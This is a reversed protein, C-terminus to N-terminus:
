KATRFNVKMPKLANGAKDKFGRYRTSNLQFQYHWNPKLKVPVTLVTHTTNYFIRDSIKPFNPVGGVISWSNDMMPRDFTIIISTTDPAVDAASNAPIISIVQPLTIGIKQMEDPTLERTKFNVEVPILPNGHEDKFGLYKQSNLYFRYNWNPKLKVPITLITRRSNYFINDNIEPFNPGGGVVSWSGNRMPRDFTVIIADINPNVKLSRNEPKLRLIRPAKEKLAQFQAEWEKKVLKINETVNNAYSNIFKTIQPFFNNLGPNKNREMEYKQLLKVLGRVWFFGNKQEADIQKDGKEKGYKMHMFRAVCARVLSEKMVTDWGAYAQARMQKAVQPLIKEGAKQLAYMNKEVLPNVFSHCFEHVITSIFSSDFAPMGEKDKLWAGLVCFLEEDNKSLLFNPGYCSGGNVLAIFISFKKGRQKGFYNSFWSLVEHKKLVEQLRMEALRYLKNHKEIFTLFNSDVVFSRAAKIFERAEKIQWRKDNFSVPRPEFSVRERLSYADTLHVALSMPADYSVGRKRRLKRAIEVVPHSRFKNFYRDVDDNYSPIRGRNYEPNGALRFIISILEIRPDVSIDPGSSPELCFGNEVFYSFSYIVIFLLLTKKM